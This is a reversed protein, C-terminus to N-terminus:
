FTEWTTGQTVSVCIQNAYLQELIEEYPFFSPGLELAEYISKVPFDGHNTDVWRVRDDMKVVVKKECLRSLLRWADEIERDNFYKIFFSNWWGDVGLWGGGWRM